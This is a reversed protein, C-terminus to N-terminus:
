GRFSLRLPLRSPQRSLAAVVVARTHVISAPAKPQEDPDREPVNSGAADVRVAAVFRYGRKPVNRHIARGRDRGASEEAGLHWSQSKIGRRLHRGLSRAPAARERGPSGANEVLVRLLDFMKPTLPIPQAGRLLRQETVDMRFPGFEFTRRLERTM